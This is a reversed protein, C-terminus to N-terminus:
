DENISERRKYAHNLRDMEEMEMDWTIHQEGKGMNQKKDIRGEKTGDTVYM